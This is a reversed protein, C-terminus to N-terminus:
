TFDSNRLDGSCTILSGLQFITCANGTSCLQWGVNIDSPPFTDPVTGTLFNGELNLQYLGRAQGLNTPITGPHVPLHLSLPPM